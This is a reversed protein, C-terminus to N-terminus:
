GRCNWTGSVQIGPKGTVANTLSAEVTGSQRTRDITFTVKDSGRSQLVMTKDPSNVEVSADVAAYTGPGRFTSVYFNVEWVNGTADVTGYFTSSWVQGNRAKIGSCENKQSGTDAVIGTMQGALEGIFTLNQTWGGQAIVQSPSAVAAPTSQGCATLVFLAVIGAARLM